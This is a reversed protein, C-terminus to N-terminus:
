DRALALALRVARELPEPVDGMSGAFRRWAREPKHSRGRIGAVREIDPELVVVRDAGAAALIVENLAAEAAIPESGAAADRDHVVVYPVRVAKCIDIFLPLNGKGGCEVISIAEGDADHGLAEFVFPFVLKETRGEVLIAARALFLESREVDFESLARFDDGAPLPSPQLVATAGGRDREVLVLEDLRAVNLFAPSHTSYLVQNGGHAFTRLLRYLYRQAQPRLYLEPEEILLLVGHIGFACCSRIADVVGVAPLTRGHPAVQPRLLSAVHEAAASAHASPAVVAGARLEAPLFLVPPTVAPPTAALSLATGDALRGELEPAGDGVPMDAPELPRAAPDLLAHVAGLLNSKGADAEGVLACLSGPELSADGISRFHRVRVHAVHNVRRDDVVRIFM